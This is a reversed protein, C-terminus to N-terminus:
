LVTYINNYKLSEDNSFIPPTVVVMKQEIIYKQTSKGTVSMVIRKKVAMITMRAELM